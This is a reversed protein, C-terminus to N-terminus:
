LGINHVFNYVVHIIYSSLADCILLLVVANNKTCQMVKKAKASYAYEGWLMRRLQPPKAQLKRAWLRAFQQLSFGWGDLASAFVVEGIKHLITCHLTTLKVHVFMCCSAQATHVRLLPM